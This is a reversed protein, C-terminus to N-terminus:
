VFCIQSHLKQQQVKGSVVDVTRGIRRPSGKSVMMEETVKESENM